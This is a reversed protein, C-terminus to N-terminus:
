KLNVFLHNVLDTFVMKASVNRGLLMASRDLTSISRLYFKSPIAAVARADLAASDPNDDVKYCLDTLKRSAMFLNRLRSAAYECFSKQKERSKLADLMDVCELSRLLDGDLLATLLANWIEVLETQAVSCFLSQKDPPLVRLLQCRSYITKMVDEPSQCILIFNTQAPPEELIKLLKNAAAINMREPLLMVISKFSGTVSSLSLKSLIEKAEYVSINGSKSEIGLAAYLEQETFNPNELVLARFEKLGMDSVPHEGKIVDGTNVPFVYHVDPHVLKAMQRCSPCEGCSDGNVPHECNLYTLFALALQLAGCGPNEHFLMAHPIRHNDVMARLAAVAEANGKIQSFKM